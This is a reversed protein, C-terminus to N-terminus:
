NGLRKEERVSGTSVKCPPEATLRALKRELKQQQAIFKKREENLMNCYAKAENAAYAVDLEDRLVALLQEEGRANRRIGCKAQQKEQLRKVCASAEEYKRRLWALQNDKARQNKMQAMKRDSEMKLKRFKMEEDKLQRSMQVRNKKLRSLEASLQKSQEQLRVNERELKVIEAM